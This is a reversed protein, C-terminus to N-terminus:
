EYDSGELAVFECTGYGYLASWNTAKQYSEILASPVYVRGGSGGQAFPTGNFFNVNGLEAVSSSRLILEKLVTCNPFTASWGLSSVMGLDVRKLSSCGAFNGGQLSTLAPLEIVTAGTNSNFVYSVMSLVAPFHYTCVASRYALCYSNLRTIRDNVYDGSLGGSLIGDEADHGDGVRISDVTQVFGEPFSLMQESGAKERIADAVSILDEELQQRDIVCYDAM